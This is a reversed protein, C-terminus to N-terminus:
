VTPKLHNIKLLYNKGKKKFDILTIIERLEDYVFGDGNTLKLSVVYSSPSDVSWQTLQRLRVFFDKM